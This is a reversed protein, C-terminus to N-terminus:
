GKHIWLEFNLTQKQKILGPIDICWFPFGHQNGLHAVENTV